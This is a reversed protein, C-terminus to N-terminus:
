SARSNQAARRLSRGGPASRRCFRREAPGLGMLQWGERVLQLSREHLDVHSKRGDEFVHEGRQMLTKTVWGPDRLAPPRLWRQLWRPFNVAM